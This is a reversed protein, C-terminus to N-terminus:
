CVEELFALVLRALVRSRLDLLQTFVNVLLMSDSAETVWYDYKPMSSHKPDTSLHSIASNEFNPWERRLVM